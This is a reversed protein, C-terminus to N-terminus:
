NSRSDALHQRATVPALSWDNCRMVTGWRYDFNCEEIPKFGVPRCVANSPANDASPFAHLAAASRGPRDETHGSYRRGPRIGPRQIPWTRGGSRSYRRMVGSATGIDSGGSIRPRPM